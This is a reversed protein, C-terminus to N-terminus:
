RRFTKVLKIFLPTSFTHLAPNLISNIPLGVVAVWSIVDSQHQYGALSMAAVPIVVFSGIFNSISVMMFRMMLVKYQPSQERDTAKLSKRM